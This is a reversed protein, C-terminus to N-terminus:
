KASKLVEQLSEGEDNQQGLTWNETASTELWINGSKRFVQVCLGFETFFKKELDSVRTQKSFKLNGYANTRRIKDLVNNGTIMKDRSFREGKLCPEKFFEIKLFPLADNFVKKLDYTTTTNEISLHNM